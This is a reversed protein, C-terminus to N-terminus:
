AIPRYLVPKDEGDALARLSLAISLAAAILFIWKFFMSFPDIALVGGYASVGEIGRLRFLFFASIAIGALAIYGLRRKNQVLLDFILLFMGFVALELEPVIAGIDTIRFFESM